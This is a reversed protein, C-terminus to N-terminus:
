RRIFYDIISAVAAGILAGSGGIVGSRRNSQTELGRIRKDHSEVRNCVDYTQRATFELLERDNMTKLQHEFDLDNLFYKGNPM